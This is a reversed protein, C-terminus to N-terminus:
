KRFDQCSDDSPSHSEGSVPLFLSLMSDSDSMNIRDYKLGLLGRSLGYITATTSAVQFILFYTFIMTMFVDSLTVIYM